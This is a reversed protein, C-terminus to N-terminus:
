CASDENRFLCCLAPSLVENVGEDRISYYNWTGKKEVNLFGADLLQKLHYSLKSQPMEIHEALDCVCLSRYKQILHMIELRKHDSLAKFKKEYLKFTESTPLLETTTM